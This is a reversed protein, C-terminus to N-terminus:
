RNHDPCLEVRYLWGRREAMVQLLQALSEIRSRGLTGFNIVAHEPFDSPEPCVELDQSVCESVTVAVVGYSKLDGGRTYHEWAARASIQIVTTCQYAIGM